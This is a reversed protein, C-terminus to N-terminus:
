KFNKDYDIDSDGLRILMRGGQFLVCLMISLCKVLSPDAEM